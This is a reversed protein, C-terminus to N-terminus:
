YEGFAQNVYRSFNNDVATINVSAKIYYNRVDEKIGDPMDADILWNEIEQSVERWLEKVEALMAEQMKLRECIKEKSGVEILKQHTAQKVKEIRFQEERLNRCYQLKAKVM